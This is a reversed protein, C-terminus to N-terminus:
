TKNYVISKYMNENLLTICAEEYCKLFGFPRKRQYGLSNLKNNEERSIWAVGPYDNITQIIEKKNKSLILNERFERIPLTHEWVAFSYKRKNILMKGMTYRQEWILDFPNVGIKQSQILISESIFTAHTGTLIRLAMDLGGKLGKPNETNVTKIANVYACIIEIFSTM